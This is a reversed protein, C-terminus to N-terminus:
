EGHGEGQQTNTARGCYKKSCEEALATLAEQDIPGRRCNILVTAVFGYLCNARRNEKRWEEEMQELIARMQKQLIKVIMESSQEVLADATESTAPSM